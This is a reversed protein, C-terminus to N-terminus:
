REEETKDARIRLWAVVARQMDLATHGHSGYHEVIFTPNANELEAAVKRLEKALLDRRRAPTLLLGVQNLYDALDRALRRSSRCAALFQARTGEDLATV